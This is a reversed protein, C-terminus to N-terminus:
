LSKLNNVSKKIYDKNYGKFVNENLLYDIADERSFEVEHQNEWVNEKNLVMLLISKLHANDDLIDSIETEKLTNTYFGRNVKITKEGSVSNEIDESTIDVELNFFDEVEKSDKGYKLVLEDLQKDLSKYEKSRRDLHEALYKYMKM